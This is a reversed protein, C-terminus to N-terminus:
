LAGGAINGLASKVTDVSFNGNSDTGVNKIGKLITAVAGDDGLFNGDYIKAMASERIGKDHWPYMEPDIMFRHGGGWFVAHPSVMELCNGLVDLLAAKPNIGGIAKAKYACKIELSQNFEIGADRRKVSDIRNIPGQVRNALTSEYPDVNAAAVKEYAQKDMGVKGDLGIIFKGLSTFKGTYHSGSEMFPRIKDFEPSSPTTFLSTHEGGDGLLKDIVAQKSEGETGNVDWIKSQVDTWKIGTTFNLLSSLSNETEGGFWSM